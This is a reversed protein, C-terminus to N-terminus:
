LDNNTEYYNEVEENLMMNKNLQQGIKISLLYIKPAVNKFWPYSFSNKFHMSQLPSLYLFFIIVSFLFACRFWGAFMSVVKEALPVERKKSFAKIIKGLLSFIIAVVIFISIFTISSLYSENLFPIKSVLDRALPPYFHFALIGGVLLGVIKFLEVIFGRSVAAYTIRLFIIIFVLDIAGLRKIIEM